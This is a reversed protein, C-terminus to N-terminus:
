KSGERLYNKSNKLVEKSQNLLEAELKYDFESSNIYKKDIIEHSLGYHIELVLNDNNFYYEYDEGSLASLHIKILKEQDYYFYYNSFDGEYYSIYCIQDHNQSVKLYHEGYGRSNTRTFSFGELNNYNKIKEDIDDAIKDYSNMDYSNESWVGNSNLYCGDVTTDHAMYGNSYFYYWNGEILRWGIAWSNDESYWCGKSDQKWEGAKEKLYSFDALPRMNKYLTNYISEIYTIDSNKNRIIENKDAGILKLYEYLGNEGELRLAFLYPAYKYIFDAVKNKEATDSTSNYQNIYDSMVKDLAVAMDSSLRLRDFKDIKDGVKFVANMSLSTVSVQWSLGKIYSEVERYGLNRIAQLQGKLHNQYTEKLDKAAERVAKKSANNELVELFNIFDSNAQLVKRMEFYEDSADKICSVVELGKGFKGLLNSVKYLDAMEKDFKELLDVKNIGKSIEIFEESQILVKPTLNIGEEAKTNLYKEIKQNFAELKEYRGDFLKNYIEKDAEIFNDFSEILDKSMDLQQDILEKDLIDKGTDKIMSILIDKARLQSQDLIGDDNYIKDGINILSPAINVRFFSATGKLLPLTDKANYYNDLYIYYPYRNSDAFYNWYTYCNDPSMNLMTQINKGKQNLESTQTSTTTSAHVMNTIGLFVITNSLLSTCITLMLIRSILRRRIKLM